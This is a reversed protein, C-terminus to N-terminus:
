RRRALAEVFAHRACQTGLAQWCTNCRCAGGPYCLSCEMADGKTRGEPWRSCWTNQSGKRCRESGKGTEQGRVIPVEWGMSARKCAPDVGEELGDPDGSVTVAVAVLEHSGSAADKAVQIDKPHSDVLERAAIVDVHLM